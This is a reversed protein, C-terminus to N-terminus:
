KTQKNANESKARAIQDFLTDMSPQFFQLHMKRLERAKYLVKREKWELYLYVQKRTIPM